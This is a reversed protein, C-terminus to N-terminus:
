IQTGVAGVPRPLFRGRWLQTVSGLCSWTAESTGPALLRQQGSAWHLSPLQPRTGAAPSVSGQTGLRLTHEAAPGGRRGPAWASDWRCGM